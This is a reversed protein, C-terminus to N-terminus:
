IAHREKEQAEIVVQAIRQDESKKKETINRATVLIGRIHKDHLVNKATLETWVMQGNKDKMRLVSSIVLNKHIAITGYQQRVKE